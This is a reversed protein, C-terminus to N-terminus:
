SFEQSGLVNAGGVGGGDQEETYKTTRLCQLLRSDGWWCGVDTYEQPFCSCHTSCCAPSWRQCSPLAGMELDHQLYLEQVVGPVASRLHTEWARLCSTKHPLSRPSYNWFASRYPLSSIPDSLLFVSRSATSAEDAGIGLQPAPNPTTGFSLRSSLPKSGGDVLRLSWSM